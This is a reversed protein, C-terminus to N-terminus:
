GVKVSKTMGHMLHPKGDKADPVFCLLAYDGPDLTLTFDGSAGKDMPSIGGLFKAPIPGKEGGKEWAELDKLSKGPLFQALVVEHVQPGDNQVRITHNGPTLPQSLDFSYDTVKIVLDPVAATAQPGAAPTVELSSIMGKAVHPVGAATPIFCIAAYHGPQMALTANTQQTPETANPGGVFHLWTPTPGPHKLAALLSDVTRGQELRAIVLHHLEKGQNDLHFATLGAPIESPGSFHYDTATFTVSNAAPAPGAATPQSDAAASQGGAAPTANSRDPKCAPLLMAVAVLGSLTRFLM